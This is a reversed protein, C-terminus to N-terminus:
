FAYVNRSQNCSSEEKTEKPHKRKPLLAPFDFEIKKEM